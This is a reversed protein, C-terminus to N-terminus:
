GKSNILISSCIDTSGPRDTTPVRELGVKLTLKGGMKQLVRTSM